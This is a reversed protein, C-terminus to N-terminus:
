QAAYFAALNAIDADSLAKVLATMMPDKRDGDRFAKIQKALYLEHQGALNPWMPNVSTGTAGHCAACMVAKAKGAEADAAMASSTALLAVFLANCFQKM